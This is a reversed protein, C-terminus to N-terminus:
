QYAEVLKTIRNSALLLREIDKKTLVVGHAVNAAAVAAILAEFSLVEMAARPSLGAPKRQIQTSDRGSWAGLEKAADVFEMGNSLMLHSLVDGGKVGCAMCVWAGTVTNVRMSDSGGHFRCATTKWPSRHSGLLILEQSEFYSAPDPLLERRYGSKASGSASPKFKSEIIKKNQSNSHPPVWEKKKFLTM